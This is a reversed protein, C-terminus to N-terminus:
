GKVATKQVILNIQKHLKGTWTAKIMCHNIRKIKEITIYSEEQHHIMEEIHDYTTSENILNKEGYPELIQNSSIEKTVDVQEADVHRETASIICEEKLNSMMNLWQLPTGVASEYESDGKEKRTQEEGFPFSRLQDYKLNLSHWKEELEVIAM